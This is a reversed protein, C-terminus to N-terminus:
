MGDSVTQLVIRKLNGDQGYVHVTMLGHYEPGRAKVYIDGKRDVSFDREWATTGTFGVPLRGRLHPDKLTADFPRPKGDGDYRIIGGAGFAHDQGYVAGDPGLRHNRGESGEVGDVIRVRGTVEDLVHLKSGGGGGMRCAVERRTPDAAPRWFFGTNTCGAPVPDSFKAGQDECRVMQGGCGAWLLPPEASADLALALNTRDRYNPSIKNLLGALDARALEKGDQWGSYKVM